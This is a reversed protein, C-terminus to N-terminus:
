KVEASLEKIKQEALDRHAPSEQALERYTQIATTFDKQGEQARALDLLARPRDPDGPRLLKLVQSFTQSAEEFRRAELSREGEELLAPISKELKEGPAPPPMVKDRVAVKAEHPPAAAM